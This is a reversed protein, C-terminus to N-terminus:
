ASKNRNSCANKDGAASNIPITFFANRLIDTLVNGKQNGFYKGDHEKPDFAACLVYEVEYRSASGMRGDLLSLVSSTFLRFCFSSICTTHTCVFAERANDIQGGIASPQAPQSLRQSNALTIHM